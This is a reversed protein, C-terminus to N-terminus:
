AVKNGYAPNSETVAREFDEWKVKVQNPDVSKSDIKSLDINRSLAYSAANRVLGEIEAGTFNKCMEALTPLKDIAEDTIRKANRM